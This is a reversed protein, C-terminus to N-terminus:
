NGLMTIEHPSTFDTQPRDRLTQLPVFEINGVLLTSPSFIFLKRANLDAADWRTCTVSQKVQAFGFLLGCPVTTKTTPAFRINAHINQFYHLTFFPNDAVSFFYNGNFLSFGTCSKWYKRGNNSGVYGRTFPKGSWYIYTKSWRSIEWVTRNFHM